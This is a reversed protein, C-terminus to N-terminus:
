SDSKNKNAADSGSMFISGAVKLNFNQVALVKMKEVRGPAGTCMLIEGQAETWEAANGSMDFVGADGRCDYFSGSEGVKNKLVPNGLTNCKESIFDKGYPYNNKGKEGPMCEGMGTSYLTEERAKPL